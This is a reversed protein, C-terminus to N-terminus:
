CNKYNSASKGKKKKEKKRKLIKEPFAASVRTSICDSYPILTTGNEQDAKRLRGRMKGRVM